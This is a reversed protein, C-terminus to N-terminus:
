NLERILGIVRGKIEVGDATIPQHLPNHPLLM